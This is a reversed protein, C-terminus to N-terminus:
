VSGGGQDLEDVDELESRDDIRSALLIVRDSGGHPVLGLAPYASEEREFIAIEAITEDFEDEFALIARRLRRLDFLVDGRYHGSRGSVAKGLTGDEIKAVDGASVQTTEVFSTM